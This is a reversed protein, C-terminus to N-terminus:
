TIGPFLFFMKSLQGKEFFNPIYKMANMRMVSINQYAEPQSERLAEIRHKVYDEVKVRIEMGLILTEPFLPSLSVLLGGYGCGVDVFEIKKLSKETNEESSAIQDM